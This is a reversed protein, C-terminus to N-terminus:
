GHPLLADRSGDVLIDVLSCVGSGGGCGGDRSGRVTDLVLITDDSSVLSSV